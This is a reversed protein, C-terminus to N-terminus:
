NSQHDVECKIRKWSSKTFINVGLGKLNTHYRKIFRLTERRIVTYVSRTEKAKNNRILREGALTSPFASQRGIASDIQYYKFLKFIPFEDNFLFHDIPMSPVEMHPLLKQAASKSIIYGASLLHTSKLQRLSLELGVIRRKPGVFVKTGQTELKIFDSDTPVWDSNALLLSASPSLIIDDELVVAHKEQGNAILEIVKRHSLFCAVEGPTMEEIWLNKGNNRAKTGIANNKDIAPVRDFALGLKGCMKTMYDLRDVSQDLNIVYIKM